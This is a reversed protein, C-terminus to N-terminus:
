DVLRMHRPPWVVALVRGRVKSEPLFPHYVWEEDVMKGWRHSDHVDNRNDGLVFYHDPPVKVAGDETVELGERLNAGEPPWAYEIPEAIYPEEVPQGNRILRGDAIRVTDGGDAVIRQLFVVEHAPETDPPEFLVVDGASPPGPRIPSVADTALITDGQHLTPEMTGSNMRKLEVGPHVGAFFLWPIALIAAILCSPLKRPASARVVRTGAFMDHLAINDRRLAVLLPDIFGILVARLLIFLEVLTARAMARGRSPVKGDPGIVTLGMWAKGPTRGTNAVYYARFGVRAPVTALLCGVTLWTAGPYISLSAYATAVCAGTILGLLIEDALAAQLRFAFGAAVPPPSASSLGSAPQAM